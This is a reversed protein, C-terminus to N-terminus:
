SRKDTYAHPSRQIKDHAERLYVEVRNWHAVARESDKHNDAAEHCQEAASRLGDLLDGLSRWRWSM